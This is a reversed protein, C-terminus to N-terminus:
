AVRDPALFKGYWGAPEQWVEVLRYGDRRLREIERQRRETDDSLPHLCLRNAKATM